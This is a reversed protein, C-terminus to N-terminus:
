MTSKIEPEEVHTSRPNVLERLKRLLQAKCSKGAQAYAQKLLEFEEIHIDDENVHNQNSTPQMDLKHWHTHLSHLPIPRRQRTYDAIEHACPLATPTDLDVDVHM